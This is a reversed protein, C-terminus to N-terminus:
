DRDRDKNSSRSHTSGPRSSSKRTKEASPSLPRTMQDINSRALFSSKIRDPIIVDDNDDCHKVSNSSKSSSSSESLIRIEEMKNNSGEEAVDAATIIIPRNLVVLEDEEGMLARRERELKQRKAEEALANEDEAEQRASDIMTIAESAAAASVLVTDNEVLTVASNAEEIKTEAVTTETAAVVAAGSASANQANQAEAAAEEGVAAEGQEVPEPDPANGVSDFLQTFVNLSKFFVTGNTPAEEQPTPSATAERGFMAMQEARWERLYSVYEEMDPDAIIMMNM